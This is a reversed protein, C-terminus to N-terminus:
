KKRKEHRRRTSDEGNKGGNKEGSEEVGEMRRWEERRRGRRV